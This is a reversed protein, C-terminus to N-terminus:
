PADGALAEVAADIAADVTVLNNFRDVLEKRFDALLYEWDDLASGPFAKQLVNIVRDVIQDGLDASNFETWLAERFEASFDDRDTMSM